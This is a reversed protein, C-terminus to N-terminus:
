MVIFQEFFNDDSQKPSFKIKQPCQSSKMTHDGFNECLKCYLERKLSCIIPDSKLWLRTALDTLNEIQNTKRALNERFKRVFKNNSELPEESLKKFGYGGNEEVLACTHALLVHLTNPIQIEGNFDDLIKIATDKCLLDLKEVHIKCDSSVLRLIIALNRFIFKISNQKSEPAFEALMDRNVKNWIIRRGTNGTSCSGGASTPDPQDVIIGTENQIYDTVEKKTIKLVKQDAASEIWSTLNARLHYIVKLCWDFVRLMVHLVPIYNVNTSTLLPKNTLGLRDKSPIRKPIKGDKEVASFMNWLDPLSVGQMPFGNIYQQANNGDEKNCDSVICYAGGRGTLLKKTSGDTMTTNIEIELNIVRDGIKICLGDKKIAKIEEQIMPFFIGLTERDEKGMILAIPRSKDASNPQLESYVLEYKDQVNYCDLRIKSIELVVFMYLVMNHTKSNGKQNYISHRGSGDCGDKILVKYKSASLESHDEFFRIFHKNLADKYQYKIGTLSRPLIDKKPMLIDKAIKINNYSPLLLYPKLDLRLETYQRKGFKYKTLFSLGHDNSLEQNPIAVEFLSRGIAAKAKSGEGSASYNITHILLGLLQTVDINNTSAYSKVYDLIPKLRNRMQKSGLGLEGLGKIVEVDMESEESVEQSSSSQSLAM